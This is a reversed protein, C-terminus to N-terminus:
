NVADGDGPNGGTNAGAPVQGLAVQIVAQWPLYHSIFTDQYLVQGDRYVTRYVTVDAGDVAYDVQKTQGPNLDPNEEYVTPGHPQVNSTYPGDKTVTRGDGTSYFKWTLTAAAKNTYTEILLHYPTDNVFRFDVIPSFVTADMGAGEGSEYYGVRYGHPWREPIPFGAYFATQFATTSVQCVGGGVGKVTRGGYIILGEEFGSEESVDGLYENFSFEQGPAIVIGHFRSAAVAVNTKRVDSSGAFYTTASSVLEVIGLEEGTAADPVAPPIVDLALSVSHQGGLLATNIRDVSDAVNLERGYVANQIPELQGTDDDFVFRANAPTVSLSHALPEVFTQLQAENMRVAYRQTGDENNVRELILADAILERPAVWPGPDGPLPTELTVTLPEALITQALIAAETADAIPPHTEVVVLPVEASQLSGVPASLTNLTALVDVQRGVQSSTTLVEYEANIAITADIMPRDIEGAIARVFDEARSQDYVVVPSLSIGSQLATLQEGTSAFFSDRRGITYAAEITREVDFTVGLESATAQWIRDGDRFTFVTSEPYAFQGALATRAQATTMGSLDVGWASVGPFIKDQHYIQYGVALLLSMLNLVLVVGLVGMFLRVLGKNQNARNYNETSM